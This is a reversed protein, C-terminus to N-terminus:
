ISPEHTEDNKSSTQAPAPADGPAERKPVAKSNVKTRRQAANTRAPRKAAQPPVASSTKPKRAAQRSNRTKGAKPKDSPSPKSSKRELAIKGGEEFLRTEAEALARKLESVEAKYRKFAQRARQAIRKALKRRRKAQRSQERLGKLKSEASAVRIRYLQVEGLLKQPNGKSRM